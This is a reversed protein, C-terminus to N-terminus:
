VRDGVNSDIFINREIFAPPSNILLHLRLSKLSSGFYPKDLPPVGQTWIPPKAHKMVAAHEITAALYNEWYTDLDVAPPESVALEYEEASMPGILDLLEAFAYSPTDSTALEALLDQFKTQASPLVTSLIWDSMSMQANKAQKKIARKQSRSVRIQLQETKRNKKM